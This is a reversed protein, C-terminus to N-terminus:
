IDIIKKSFPYCNLIQIIKSSLLLRGKQNIGYVKDGFIPFIFSPGWKSGWWNNKSDWFAGTFVIGAEKNEYINNYNIKTYNANSLKAGIDNNSIINYTIKPSLVNYIKIGIDNKDIKNYDIINYHSWSLYIGMSNDEFTNKLIKNWNSAYETFLGKNNNNINNNEFINAFSRIGYIGITNKIITNESINNQEAESMNIGIYNGIIKNKKINCCFSDISYDPIGIQIGANEESSNKITFGSINVMPATIYIVNGKKRGDIITSNSGKGVINLYSKNIYINEFFTGNEVIIKYGNKANNIAQQISQSENVIIEGNVLDLVDIERIFTDNKTENSIKLTVNYIGSNEYSHSVRSGLDKKGDGFDWEYKSINKNEEFSLSGDFYIEKNIRPVRSSFRFYSILKKNDWYNRCNDKFNEKNKWFVNGSIFNNDSTSIIEIGTKNSKSINCSVITTYHVCHDLCIGYDNNKIKCSEILNNYSSPLCCFYIGYENNSLTCDKITNNNAQKNYGNPCGNVSIGFRNNYCVCEEILNNSSSSILIGFSSKLNYCDVNRIIGNIVNSFSIGAIPDLKVSSIKNKFIHCNEIIFHKDTNIIQIGNKFIPYIKWNSIIYPNDKTGNGCRVGNQETFGDNGNIQIPLHFKLNNKENESNKIQSQITPFISINLV